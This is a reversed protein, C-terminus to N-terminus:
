LYLFTIVVPKVNPSQCLRFITTESIYMESLYAFHAISHLSKSDSIHAYTLPLEAVLGRKIKWPNLYVCAMNIKVNEAPTVSALTIAQLIALWQNTHGLPINESIIHSSRADNNKWTHILLTKAKYFHLYFAM